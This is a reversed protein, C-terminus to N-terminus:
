AKEPSYIAGVAGMTQPLAVFYHRFSILNRQNQPDTKAESYYMTTEANAKFMRPAYFAVSAQYEGQEALSGYSKKKGQTTFTPCNVYEYIDFGYMKTIAGSQYNYYQNAFNQDQLLLDQVHDACLVLRRGTQPVKMKDFRNKLAIIDNRTLRRRNGDYEGSAVLVPTKETDENPAFAHIAKDLEAEAIADGHQAKKLTMKDYSIAYLEDDTIPTPKTQYKDLSISKDGDELTQIDLPYTTNNILVDPNVGAEVLHIVNNHAYQSYDPVGDLFTNQLRHTFREIVQGIWVETFVGERLGSVQPMMSMMVGVANMVMAGVLANIEVMSALLGGMICNFVVAMLVKIGKM